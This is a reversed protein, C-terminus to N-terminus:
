RWSLLSFTESRPIEIRSDPSSWLWDHQTSVSAASAIARFSGNLTLADKMVQILPISDLGARPFSRTGYEFVSLSDGCMNFAEDYLRTFYEKGSNAFRVCSALCMPELPTPSVVTFPAISHM